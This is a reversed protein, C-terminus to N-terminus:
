LGPFRRPRVVKYWLVVGGILFILPLIVDVRGSLLGVLPITAGFFLLVWSCTILPLQSRMLKAKARDFIPGSLRRADEDSYGESRLHNIIGLHGRNAGLLVEAKPVYRQIIPEEDFDISPSTYPNDEPKM